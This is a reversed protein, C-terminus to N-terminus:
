KRKKTTIPLKVKKLTAQAAKILDCTECSNGSYINEHTMTATFHGAIYRLGEVLIKERKTM